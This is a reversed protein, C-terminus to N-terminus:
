RRGWGHKESWERIQAPTMKSFDPKDSPSGGSSPPPVGPTQPKVKLLALLKDADAELEEATEGQLRDALEVPLGKATAVRLREKELRLTKLENERQELLSKYNGQEKMKAEEAARQEDELKKLKAEAARLKKNIEAFRDYPVPGPPEKGQDTQQEQQEDQPDPAQQEQDKQDEGM